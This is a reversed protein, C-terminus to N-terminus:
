SRESVRPGAGSAATSSRRRPLRRSHNVRRQFTTPTITSATSAKVADDTANAPNPNSLKM